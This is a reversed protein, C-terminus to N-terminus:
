GILASNANAARTPGAKESNDMARNERITKLAGSPDAAGEERAQWGNRDRDGDWPNGQKKL